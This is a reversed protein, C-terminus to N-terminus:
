RAATLYAVAASTLEVRLERHDPPGLRSVPERYLVAERIAASASLLVMNIAREPDRHTILRRRALILARFRAHAETNFDSLLARLQPNRTQRAILAAPRLVGRHAAFAHIASGLYWDIVAELPAGKWREPASDERLRDRLERGVEGVLFAVVYEKSPFRLYFAGVSIGAAAAIEAVSVEEFDREAFLARAAESIRLLAEVSRLQRPPTAGRLEDPTGLPAGRPAARARGNRSGSM